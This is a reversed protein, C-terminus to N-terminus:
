WSKEKNELYNAFERRDPCMMLAVWSKGYSKSSRLESLPSTSSVPAGAECRVTSRARPGITVWCPCYSAACESWHWVSVGNVSVVRRSSLIGANADTLGPWNTSSRDPEVWAPLVAALTALLRRRPLAPLADLEALVTGLTAPAAIADALAVTLAHRSGFLLRAAMRAERLRASREPEALDFVALLNLM